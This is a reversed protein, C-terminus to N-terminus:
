KDKTQLWVGEEKEDTIGMWSIVDGVFASSIKNLFLVTFSLLHRSVAYPSFVKHMGNRTPNFLSLFAEGSPHLCKEHIETSVLQSTLDM